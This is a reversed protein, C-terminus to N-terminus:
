LRTGYKIRTDAPDIYAAENEETLTVYYGSETVLANSTHPEQEPHWQVKLNWTEGENPEHWPKAPHAQFYDYAVTRLLGAGDNVTTLERWFSKGYAPNHADYATIATGDRDDYEPKRVVFCTPYEPHVWINNKDLWYRAITEVQNDLLRNGAQILNLGHENCLTVGGDRHEEIHLNKHEFRTM